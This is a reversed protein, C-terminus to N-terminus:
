VAAWGVDQKQIHLHGFYRADAQEFAQRYFRIHNKGCGVGLIGQFSVFKVHHIIQQFGDGKLAKKLGDIFGGVAQGGAWRRSFTSGGSLGLGLGFGALGGFGPGVIDEDLVTGGQDFYAQGVDEVDLAHFVVHGYVGGGFFYHGQLAEFVQFIHQGGIAENAYVVGVDYSKIPYLGDLFFAYLYAFGLQGDAKGVM